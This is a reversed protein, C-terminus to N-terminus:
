LIGVAAATAATGMGVVNYTHKPANASQKNGVQVGYHQGYVDSVTRSNERKGAPGRVVPLHHLNLPFRQEPARTPLSYVGKRTPSGIPGVLDIELAGEEPVYHDREEEEEALMHAKHAAYELGEFDKRGPEEEGEMAEMLDHHEKSRRKVTNPSVDKHAEHMVEEHIFQKIDPRHHYTTGREEPSKYQYLDGYKSFDPKERKARPTFNAAGLTVM